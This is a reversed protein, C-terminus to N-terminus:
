AADESKPQLKECTVEDYGSPVISDFLWGRRGTLRGSEDRQDTVPSGRGGPYERQWCSWEATGEDVWVKSSVVQLQPQQPASKAHQDRIAGDFYELTAPKKGRKLVTEVAALVTGQSYGEALWQRCRAMDPVTIYRSQFNATIAFALAAAKRELDEDLPAAADARSQEAEAEAEAEPRKHTVTANRDNRDDCNRRNRKNDRYRKQRSAATPDTKDSKFQHQDWDHPIFHDGYRDLLKAAVLQTLIAAARQESIRLAFAVDEIPPVVGDNESAICNVNFWAKFMDGSLKQLKRNNVASNKARWWRESM